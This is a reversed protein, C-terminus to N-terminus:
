PSFSSINIRHNRVIIPSPPSQEKIANFERKMDSRFPESSAANDEFNYLKQVESVTGQLDMYTRTVHLKCLRCSKVTTKVYM